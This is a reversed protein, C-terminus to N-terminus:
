KLSLLLYMSSVVGQLRAFSSFLLSLNSVTIKLRKFAQEINKNNKGEMYDIIAKYNEAIVEESIAEWYTDNELNQYKNRQVDEIHTDVWQSVTNKKTEVEWKGSFEIKKIKPMNDEAVWEPSNDSLKLSSFDIKKNSLAELFNDIWVEDGNFLVKWDTAIIDKAVSIANKVEEETPMKQTGSISKQNCFTCDNPCGLHPVFIPIIYRESM